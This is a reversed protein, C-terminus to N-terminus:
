FLPTGCVEPELSLSRVHVKLGSHSDKKWIIKGHLILWDNRVMLGVTDKRMNNLAKMLEEGIDSSAGAVQTLPFM